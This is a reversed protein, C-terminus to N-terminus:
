RTEGTTASQRQRQQKVREGEMCARFENEHREEMYSYQIADMLERRKRAHPNDIGTDLSRALKRETFEREEDLHRQGLRADCPNFVADFAAKREKDDAIRAQRAAYGKWLVFGGLCLSGGVLVFVVLFAVIRDWRPHMWMGNANM